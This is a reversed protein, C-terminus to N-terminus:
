PKRRATRIAAAFGATSGCILVCGLLLFADPWPSDQSGSQASSDSDQLGAPVTAGRLQAVADLYFYGYKKSPEVYSNESFENWSILGLMDPSSGVAAAYETRLTRGDDRPVTGTGGVLEADFGPAFPAIWYGHHAHVAAAMQQLKKPYGADTQPNVSSWYYADGDTYSAIQDYASVSKQTNLVLLRGTVPSTVSRVAAASFEWTGSWITLAKGGIKYFVPNPAYKTEFTQFDKGVESAPLPKRQFDLGQYIMALKFKEQAAIRMVLQLRSDNQATDKWSVIFGQIGAAKASEIQQKVIAPDGSSYDGALPYDLKARRWSNPSFWIYYYAFLPLANGGSAVPGPLPTLESPVSSGSGQPSSAPTDSQTALGVALAALGLAAIM